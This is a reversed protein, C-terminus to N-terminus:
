PLTLRPGPGPDDPWGYSPPADTDVITVIVSLTGDRNDTFEVLRCQQPWDIHSATNVEWFGGDVPSGTPRAHGLVQNHHTHGNVWAVVNPFRLLLSQVQPGLARARRAPHWRRTTWLASRTTASCSSCGIGPAIRSWSAPRMSTGAAAPSWSGSWGASSAPRPLWRRRWGPQGYRARHVPHRAASRTIRPAMLSMGVRAVMGARIGPPTAFHERVVEARTLLRRDPDATVRRTPGGLLLTLMAPNDALLDAFLLELDIGPALGIIKDTGTAISGFAPIEAIAGQLLGDHNGFVTLWPTQLGAAVFPRVAAALLGPVVPFGYM